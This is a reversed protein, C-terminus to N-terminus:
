RASDPQGFERDIVRWYLDHEAGLVRAGLSDPTDTDLVPVEAFGLMEGEDYEASVRHVTAGSHSAGAELVAAHVRSGYMGQGGFRPLPGPHINLARGEYARVVRPDLKKMYGALVILSIQARELADLLAAGEDSHTKGSIHAAEIGHERAWALAGSGSNNSILLALEARLDGREIAAQIARVNSGRGSAFACLRLM